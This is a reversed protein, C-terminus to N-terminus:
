KLKISNFEKELSRIDKIIEEIFFENIEIKPNYQKQFALQFEDLYSKNIPNYIFPTLNDGKISVEKIVILDTLKEKQDFNLRVEFDKYEFSIFSSGVGTVLIKREFYEVLDFVLKEILTDNEKLKWSLVVFQKTIITKKYLTSTLTGGNSGKIFDSDLL